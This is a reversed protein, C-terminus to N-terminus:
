LKISSSAHLRQAGHQSVAILVSQFEDEYMVSVVLRQKSKSAPLFNFDIVVPQHRQPCLVIHGWCVLDLRVSHRRWQFSQQPPSQRNAAAEKRDQKHEKQRFATSNLLFFVFNRKSGFM